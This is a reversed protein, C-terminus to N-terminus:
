EASVAPWTRMPHLQGRIDGYFTQGKTHINFNQLHRQLLHM